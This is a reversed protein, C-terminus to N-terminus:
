KIINRIRSALNNASEKLDVFLKNSTHMLELKLCSNCIRVIEEAMQYYVTRNFHRNDKKILVNKSIVIKRMDVLHVNDHDLVVKDVIENMEVNRAVRDAGIWDSVDLEISNILIINTTKPIQSIIFELNGKFVNKDEKGIFDFNSFLYNLKKNGYINIFLDQDYYGGYGIYYDRKKNKYIGRIYDDVVSLVIIDYGGSFIKSSFTISEEFFPLNKCLEVKTITDLKVMNVLSSTDSTRIEKGEIVTTFEKDIVFQSELYSCAQELDCGGVMLMKLADQRQKTNQPIIHNDSDMIEEIWDIHIEKNLSITINGEVKILPYGLKKYLYNEIGFGLIRCSFLFHELCTDRLAYFGVIGYDGFDDKAKVYRCEYEKNCLLKEISFLDLRKKTYNLQNTRQILEEIRGIESICNECIEIKIHSARLFEENSGYKVEEIIRSELIKYQNLRSHMIDTKGEFSRLNLINNELFDPLVASIGPNYFKVEELNSVNDDIFLTNEARLKCTKLLTKVVEGKPSWSVQPFIFFNFIGWKKLVDTAKYFDNKSVISNMIGRDVLDKVLQINREIPVVKGESLTGKWFTEDLDWIVLKVKTLNM